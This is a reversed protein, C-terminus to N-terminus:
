KLLMKRIEETRKKVYPVKNEYYGKVQAFSKGRKLMQLISTGSTNLLNAWEILLLKKGDFEIYRNNNRNRAQEIKTRWKCNEKYYGKDNDLRDISLNHNPRPGMDSLFCEFSNRWEDCVTIGRGGYRAFQKHKPNHCRGIMANWTHYEPSAKGASAHGHKRNFEATKSISCKPCTTTRGTNLLTAKVVFENSCICKCIWNYHLDSGQGSFKIVTLTGFTKGLLNAKRIM